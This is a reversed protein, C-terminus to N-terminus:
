RFWGLWILFGLKVSFNEKLVLFWTISIKGVLDFVLLVLMRKQLNQLYLLQASSKNEGYSSFGERFM